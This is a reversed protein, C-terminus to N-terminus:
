SPHSTSGSQYRGSLYKVHSRVAMGLHLFVAGLISGNTDFRHLEYQIAPWHEPQGGSPRAHSGVNPTFRKTRDRQEKPSLLQFPNTIVISIHGKGRGALCRVPSRGILRNTTRWLFLEPYPNEIHM